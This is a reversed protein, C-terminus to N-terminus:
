VPNICQKSTQTLIHGLEHWRGRSYLNSCLALVQELTELRKQGDMGFSGAVLSSFRPDMQSPSEGWFSQSAQPDPHGTLSQQFEHINERRPSAISHCENNPIPLSQWLTDGEECSGEPIAELGDCRKGDIFASMHYHPCWQNVDYGDSEAENALKKVDVVDIRYPLNKSQSQTSSRGTRQREIRKQTERDDDDPNPSESCFALGDPDHGSPDKSSSAPEDEPEFEDYTDPTFPVNPNELEEEDDSVSEKKSQKLIPDETECKEDDSPNEGSKCPLDTDKDSSRSSIHEKDDLNLEESSRQECVSEETETKHSPSTSDRQSPELDEDEHDDSPCRLEQDESKLPKQAMRSKEESERIGQEDSGKFRQEEHDIAFQPLWYDPTQDM